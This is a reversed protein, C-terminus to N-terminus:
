DASKLYGSNRLVRIVRERNDKTLLPGFFRNGTCAGSYQYFNCLRYCPNGTMLTNARVREDMCYVKMEQSIKEDSLVEKIRRADARAKKAEGRAFEVVAEAEARAHRRKWGNTPM